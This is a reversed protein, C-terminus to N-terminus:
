AKMIKMGKFFIKKIITQVTNKSQWRKSINNEVLVKISIKCKKKLFHLSKCSQTDGLLICLVKVALTFAKEKKVVFYM